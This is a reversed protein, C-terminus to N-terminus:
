ACRKKDEGLPMLEFLTWARSRLKCNNKGVQLSTRKAKKKASNTEANEVEEIDDGTKIDVLNDISKNSNTQM